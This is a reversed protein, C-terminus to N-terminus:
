QFHYTWSTSGDGVEVEIVRCTFPLALAIQQGFKLTQPILKKAPDPLQCNGRNLAVSRVSYEDMMSTCVLYALMADRGRPPVIECQLPVTDQASGTEGDPASADVETGTSAEAYECLGDASTAFEKPGGVEFTGDASVIAAATKCTKNGSGSTHSEWLAVLAASSPRYDLRLYPYREGSFPVDSVKGTKLDVIYALTCGTGCGIEVLQFHGGYNTGMFLSETLRTRYGGYKQDRGNFDPQSPAGLFVDVKYEAFGDESVREPVQPLASSPAPEESGTDPRSTQPRSAGLLDSMGSKIQIGSIMLPVAIALTLVALPILSLGLRSWELQRQSLKTLLTLVVLYGVLLAALTIASDGLLQTLLKIPDVTARTSGFPLDIVMLSAFFFISLAIIQLGFLATFKPRNGTQGFVSFGVLHILSLPIAAVFAFIIAAFWFFIQM